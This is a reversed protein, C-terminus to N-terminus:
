KKPKLLSFLQNFNSMLKAVESILGEAGILYGGMAVFVIMLSVNVWDFHETTVSLLVASAILLMGMITTVLYRTVNTWKMAM